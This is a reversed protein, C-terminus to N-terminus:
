LIEELEIDELLWQYDDTDIAAFLQEDQLNLEQEVEDVHTAEAFFQENTIMNRRELLSHSTVHALRYTRKCVM